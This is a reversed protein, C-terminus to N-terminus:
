MRPMDNTTVKFYAFKNKNLGTIQYQYGQLHKLQIGSFKKVSEMWKNFREDTTPQTQPQQTQPQQNQLQQIQNLIETQHQNQNNDM